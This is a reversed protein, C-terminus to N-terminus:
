ANTVGLGLGGDVTLLAGTTWEAGLLHEVAEAVEEVTGIRGLAHAPALAQLRAAAAQLDGLGARVNIETLVAGPRVCNVRVGRPGLEAALVQTLTELAAKTAAYPSAGPFARSTHVSGFFVISGRRRVLEPVALGTLQMAGVVNTHFLDLTAAEDLDEVPGRYMNGAAHVVADVGGGHELAAALLAQRDAAVTVDARVARCPPGVSGAVREVQAQRRGCATVRAGRSTLLRVVGEGIGSGAGTVVVSADRLDRM